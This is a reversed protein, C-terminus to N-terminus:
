QWWWEGLDTVFGTSEAKQFGDANWNLGGNDRGPSSM